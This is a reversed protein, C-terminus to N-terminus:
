LCHIDDFAMMISADKKKRLVKLPEEDMGVVQSCHHIQIGNAGNGRRRLDRNLLSENGVFTINVGLESLAWLAGQVVVGPARDGGMADLAINM